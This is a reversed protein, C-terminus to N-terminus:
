EGKRKAATKDKKDLRKEKLTKTAATKSTSKKPSKDAVSNRRSLHGGVTRSGPMHRWTADEEIKGATM